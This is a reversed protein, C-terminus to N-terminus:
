APLRAGPLSVTFTCGQGLAGELEATGGHARAIQRVIWLGLGFGHAGAGSQTREFREFIRGHDEPGIGPGDDKVTLLARAGDRGVVVTARAGPAHRAVNTVLNTLVQELRTRDWHGQVGGPAHDLAVTCGAAALVDATREIVSRSLEVLDVEERALELKGTRARSVDLLNEVLKELRVCQEDAKQLRRTLEEPAIERGKKRSRVIGEVYLRLSAVPTKLEHSAVSLFEERVQLARELEETRERVRAELEDNLRRLEEKAIKLSANEVLDWDGQRRLLAFDHNKVVDFIGEPTVRDLSYSCCAVIRRQHFTNAVLAEYQAFDDWHEPELWYVNGTIRLGTRGNRRASEERALWGRVTEEPTLAGAMTYWESTDLIEIQGKAIYHALDPEAKALMERADEALFPESTVWMCQEDYRLGARFFPVLTDVLDQRTRYFQCFHAGWSLEGVAHIGSDTQTRQM